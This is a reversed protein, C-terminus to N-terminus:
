QTLQGVLPHTQWGIQPGTSHYVLTEPHLTTPYRLQGIPEIIPQTWRPSFDSPRQTGTSTHNMGAHWSSGQKRAKNGAPREAQISAPTSQACTLLGQKDHIISEVIARTADVKCNRDKNKNLPGINSATRLGLFLVVLPSSACQTM